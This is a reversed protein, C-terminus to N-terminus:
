RCKQQLFAAMKWGFQCHCSRSVYGFGVVGVRIYKHEDSSGPASPVESEGLMGRGCLFISVISIVPFRDLDVVEFM